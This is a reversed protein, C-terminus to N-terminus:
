KRGKSDMEKGPGVFAQRLALFFNNPTQQQKPGQLPWEGERGSTQVWRNEQRSVSLRSPPLGLFVYVLSPLWGWALNSSGVQENMFFFFCLLLHAFYLPKMSPCGEGVSGQLVYGWM